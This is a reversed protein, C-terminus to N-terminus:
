FTNDLISTIGALKILVVCMVDRYQKKELYEELIAMVSEEAAEHDISLVKCYSFSVAKWDVNLPNNHFDFLGLWM